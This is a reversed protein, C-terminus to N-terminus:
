GSSTAGGAVASVAPAKSTRDTYFSQGDDAMRRLRECPAFREGHEQELATLDALVQAIGREDALRLPGGRFPPFGTGLVMALDVVWAEHAVHEELCRAAENVLALVLRREIVDPDLLTPSAAAGDPVVPKGRQGNKYHYFGRGSKKGTDGRGVMAALREATPASEALVGTMSRAVHAAVDIGVHDLLELPGMPMGFRRMTRDIAEAGVGEGNMRVAEALYPFLIRNVLFGPSDAVVVPTKGLKKVLRLLAAITRDSTAPARVVEVLEMRHVPNFFHLGAVRAPDAVAGAMRAVSLSSTNTALLADPRTNAELDAFVQRKVDEREVVAEVALDVDAFASWDLTPTIAGGRAAAEDPRLRRSQVAENFLGGIKAMGADLASQEVDKLVVSLGQYAALQAIGAGMAGAGIVGVREIPKEDGGRADEGLWSGVSRAKERQFFLGLLSRCTPTFLLRAFAERESRLGEERSHQVGRRIAELAEALAPYHRASRAIRRKTGELALWRGPRTHNVLRAVFSLKPPRTPKLTGSEALEAAAQRVAEEFAAPAATRDVLGLKFAKGPTLKEGRLIMGLAPILGVRQPLRQTGGWAPLLGLQTEPLGLRTSADDRAIRHRCALAFELGGGLCPGHIAALTPVPLAEIRNFLTQGAAIIETAEEPTGISAIKKVDAGALFGSPKGSRFVVAKLGPQAELRDLVAALERIVPEDFVNMSRGAVDLTVVTVGDGGDDLRFHRLDDTM